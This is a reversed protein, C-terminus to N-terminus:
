GDGVVMCEHSLFVGCIVLSLTLLGDIAITLFWATQVLLVVQAFIALLNSGPQTLFDCRIRFRAVDLEHYVLLLRM